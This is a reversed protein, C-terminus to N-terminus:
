CRKGQNRKIGITSRIKTPIIARYIKKLIFELFLIIDIIIFTLPNKKIAMQLIMKNFGNMYIDKSSLKETSEPYFTNFINDIQTRLTKEKIFSLKISNIRYYLELELNNFIKKEKLFNLIMIFNYYEDITRDAQKQSNCMSKSHKRYHYLCDPVYGIKESYYITQITIVRDEIYNQIPFNVKNYIERKILKDWVSPSYRWYMIIHKFILMKDYLEPTIDIIQFNDINNFLNCEVLDCNEKIAKNYMKELMDHELWDDSDVFLIYIGKSAEVGTNRAQPLGDNQKKHIVKIRKDKREYEDCIQPCNDLSCNDILICEFDKFTQNLISDICTNLYKEVNYVNVIVSIKPIM